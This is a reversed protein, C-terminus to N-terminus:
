RGKVTYQNTKEGKELHNCFFHKHLIVNLLFPQTPILFILIASFSLYPILLVSTSSSSLLFILILLPHSRTLILSMLRPPSSFPVLLILFPVSPSPFSSTPIFFIPVPYPLSSFSATPVLLIPPTLLPYVTRVFINRNHCFPHFCSVSQSHVNNPLKYLHFSLCLFTIFWVELKNVQMREM